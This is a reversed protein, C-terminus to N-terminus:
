CARLRLVVLCSLRCALCPDPLCVGHGLLPQAQSLRLRARTSRRLLAEPQWM